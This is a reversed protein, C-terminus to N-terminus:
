LEPTEREVSRPTVQADAVVCGVFRRTEDIAPLPVVSSAPVDMAPTNREVSLPREQVAAVVCGVFEAMQDSTALPLM